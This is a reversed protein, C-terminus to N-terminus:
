LFLVNEKEFLINKIILLILITNLRKEKLNHLHEFQANLFVKNESFLNPLKSNQLLFPKAPM